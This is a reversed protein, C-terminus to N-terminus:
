GSGLVIHMLIRISPSALKGRHVWISVIRGLHSCPIRTPRLYTFDFDTSGEEVPSDFPKHTKEANKERKRGKKREQKEKLRERERFYIIVKNSEGLCTPM